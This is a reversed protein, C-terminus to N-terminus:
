IWCSSMREKLAAHLSESEIKLSSTSGDTAFRRGGVHILQTHSAFIARACWGGSAVDTHGRRLAGDSMVVVASATTTPTAPLGASVFSVGGPVANAAAGAEKNHDRNRWTIWNYPLKWHYSLSVLQRSIAQITKMLTPPTDDAPKARGNLIDALAENDVVICLQKTGSRLWELDNDHIYTDDFPTSRHSNTQAPATSRPGRPKPKINGLYELSPAILSPYPDNSTLKVQKLSRSFRTARYQRNPLDSIPLGRGLLLTEVWASTRLHREVASLQDCTARWNIGICSIFIYAGATRAHPHTRLYGRAARQRYTLLCYHERMRSERIGRM